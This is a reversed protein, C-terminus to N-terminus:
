VKSHHRALAITKTRISIFLWHGTMNNCTVPKQHYLSNHPSHVLLGFVDGNAITSETNYCRQYKQQNANISINVNVSVSVGGGQRGTQHFMASSNRALPEQNGSANPESSENNSKLDENAKDDNGVSLNLDKVRDVSDFYDASNLVQSVLPLDDESTITVNRPTVPASFVLHSFCLIIGYILKMTIFFM